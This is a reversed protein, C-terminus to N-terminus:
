KFHPDLEQLLSEPAGIPKGSEKDIFVLTTSAENIEVEGENYTRYYFTIREGPLERIETVISLEDDYFAPKKFKVNYEYVPLLIASDELAKYSFGLSRRAEVRAVEFYVAYNGYYAYGMQDTEGYRVRLKTIQSSM